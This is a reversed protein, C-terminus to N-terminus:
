GKKGAPNAKADADAKAKADAEEKAKAEEVPDVATGSKILKEALPDNFGATEGAQYMQYAKILRVVRM